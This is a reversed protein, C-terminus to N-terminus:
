DDLLKSGQMLLNERFIRSTKRTARGSLNSTKHKYLLKNVLKLTQFKVSCFIGSHPTEDSRYIGTYSYPSGRVTYECTLASEFIRLFDMSQYTKRLTQSLPKVWLNIHIIVDFSVRKYKYISKLIM